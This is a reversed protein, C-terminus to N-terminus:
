LVDLFNLLLKNRINHLILYKYKKLIKYYKVLLDIINVIVMKRLNM